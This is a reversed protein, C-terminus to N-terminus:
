TCIYALCKEVDKSAQTGNKINILFDKLQKSFSNETAKLIKEFKSLHNQEARIRSASLEKSEDYSINMDAYDLVANLIKSKM